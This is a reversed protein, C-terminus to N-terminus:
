EGTRSFRSPRIRRQRKPGEPKIPEHTVEDFRRSVGSVEDVDDAYIDDPSPKERMVSPLLICAICFVIGMWFLGMYADQIPFVPSSSQGMAVFGLLVWLGSAGYAAVASNKWFFIALLGLALVGCILLMPLQGGETLNNILGGFTSTDTYGSLEEEWIASASGGGESSVHVEGSGYGTPSTSSVQALYVGDAAPATFDYKYIGQSTAIYDMNVGDLEKTGDSKWLTLTVTAGNAPSGDGNLVQAYITGGEEPVYQTGFVAGTDAKVLMPVLFMCLLAIIIGVRIKM